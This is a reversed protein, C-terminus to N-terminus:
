FEVTLATTVRQEFIGNHKSIEHEYAASWVLHDALKVHAGLALTLLTKGAIDRSGLNSIADAGDFPGSGTAAQALSLPITSEDKLKIPFTGDGSGTWTTGSLQVFPTFRPHVQYDAYVHYFVSDSQFDSDLPIQGGVDAILHLNELPSWGASVSPIVIGNGEGQYVDRAGTPAEYRIAPTLYFDYRDDRVLLYKFGGAINMWGHDDELLGLKPDHWRYGDKTAIFALRDTIALRAQVAVVQTDGGKFVSHEPFEHWVYYPYVGTTIFPDEFLYPQVIPMRWGEPRGSRGCRLDPLWTCPWHATAASAGPPELAPADEGRAGQALVVVALVLAATWGLRAPASAM